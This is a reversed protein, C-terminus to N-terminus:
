EWLYMARMGLYWDAIDWSLQFMTTQTTSGEGDVTRARVQRELRDLVVMQGAVGLCVQRQEGLRQIEEEVAAGGAIEEQITTTAARHVRLLQKIVGLLQIRLPEGLTMMAVEVEAKIERRSTTLSITLDGPTIMAPTITPTTEEVGPM